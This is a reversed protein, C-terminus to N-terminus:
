RRLEFYKTEGIKTFHARVYSIVGKPYASEDLPEFGYKLEAPEVKQILFVVNGKRDAINNELRIIMSQNPLTNFYPWDILLPDLQKGKVWPASFGPIIAYRVGHTESIALDLDSLFAYTNANTRLFRGGPLVGDLRATLRSAPLDRYIHQYRGMSFAALSVVMLLGLSVGLTYRAGFIEGRVNLVIQVLFLVLVGGALTPYDFGMSISVAWAVVVALLGATATRYNGTKSFFLALAAGLSLGFLIYPSHNSYWYLDTGISMACALVALYVLIYGTISAGREKRYMLSTAALGLGIAIFVNKRMLYPMIAYQVFGRASGVQIIADPIVGLVSLLGVFLVGPFIAATWYRIKKWDGLLVLVAPFVVVFNQKCVYSLGILFYGCLKSTSKPQLALLLGVSIIFLGDITPWAMIPFTSATFVFCILGLATRQRWALNKHSLKAFIQPWAWAIVAIQLWVVLRSIWFTYEGGFMVEPTHLYETGVTQITFFDRYPVQGALIRRSNALVWGEDTPSFGMWSFSFHAAIAALIMLLLSTSNGIFGGDRGLVSPEAQADSLLITNRPTM